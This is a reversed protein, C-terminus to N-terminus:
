FLFLVAYQRFNFFQKLRHLDMLLRFLQRVLVHEIPSFDPSTSLGTVQSDRLFRTVVVAAQPRSNDRQFILDVLQQHYSIAVSELPLLGSRENTRKFFVSTPRRGYSIVDWAM